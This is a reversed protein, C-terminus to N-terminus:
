CEVGFSAFQGLDLVLFIKPNNQRAKGFNGSFQFIKLYRTKVSPSLM